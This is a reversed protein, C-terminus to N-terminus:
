IGRLGGVTLGLSRCACPHFCPSLADSRAPARMSVNVAIRAWMRVEEPTDTLCKARVYYNGEGTSLTAPSTHSDTLTSEASGEAIGTRTHAISVRSM